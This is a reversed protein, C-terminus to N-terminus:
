VHAIIPQSKQIYILRKVNCENLPLELKFLDYSQFLKLISTVKPSIMMLQYLFWKSWQNEVKKAKANQLLHKFIAFGVLCYQM